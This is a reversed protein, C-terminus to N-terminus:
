LTAGPVVRWSALISFLDFVLFFVPFIVLASVLIMPVVVLAAILPVIVTTMILPVIVSASSISGALYTELFIIKFSLSCPLTPIPVFFLDPCLVPTVGLWPKTFYVSGWDHGGM